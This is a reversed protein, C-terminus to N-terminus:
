RANIEAAVGPYFHIAAQISASSIVETDDVYDRPDSAFLMSALNADDRKSAKSEIADKNSQNRFL